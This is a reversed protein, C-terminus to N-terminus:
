QEKKLTANAVGGGSSWKGTLTGDNNLTYTVEAWRQTADDWVELRLTKEDLFKGLVRQQSPRALGPFRYAGRWYIVSATDGEIKEVTLNTALIIERWYGEWVGLFAESGSFSAPPRTYGAPRFEVLELETASGDPEVARLRVEMRVEPAYWHTFRWLRTPAQVEYTQGEVRLAQFTGAPTTVAEVGVVKYTGVYTGVLRGEDFRQCRGKWRKGVGLPFHLGLSHPDFRRLEAGGADLMRVVSLNRSLHLLGQSTGGGEWTQLTEFVLVGREEKLFKRTGRAGGSYRVTWTDGPVLTPPDAVIPARPQATAMAEAMTIAAVFVMTALISSPAVEKVRM